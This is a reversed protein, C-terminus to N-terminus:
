TRESDDKNWKRKIGSARETKVGGGIKTPKSDMDDPEREVVGGQETRVGGTKTKKSDVDDREKEM